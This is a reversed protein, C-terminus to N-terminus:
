VGATSGKWFPGVDECVQGTREDLKVELMHFTTYMVRQFPEGYAVYCLWRWTRRGGCAVRRLWRWTRREGVKGIM